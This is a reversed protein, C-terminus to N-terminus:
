HSCLSSLGEKAASSMSNVTRTTQNVLLGGEGGSQRDVSSRPIESGKRMRLDIGGTLM